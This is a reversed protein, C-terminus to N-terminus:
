KSALRIPKEKKIRELTRTYESLRDPDKELSVLTEYVVQAGECKTIGCSVLRELIGAKIGNMEFKRSPDNNAINNLEQVYALTIKVYDDKWQKPENTGPYNEFAGSIDASAMEYNGSKFDRIARFYNNNAEKIREKRIEEPTKERVLHVAEGSETELRYNDALSNGALSLGASLVVGGIATRVLKELPIKM